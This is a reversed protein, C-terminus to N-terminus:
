GEDTRITKAYTLVNPLKRCNEEDGHEAFWTTGDIMNCFFTCHKLKIDSRGLCKHIGMALRREYKRASDPSMWPFELQEALKTGILMVQQVLKNRSGQLWSPFATGANELITAPTRRAHSQGGAIGFNLQINGRRGREQSPDNLLHQLIEEAPIQSALTGVPGQWEPTGQNIIVLPYSTGETRHSDKNLYVVKRTQIRSLDVLSASRHKPQDVCCFSVVNNGAFLVIFCSM